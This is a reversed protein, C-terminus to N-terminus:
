GYAHDPRRSRASELVWAHTITDGSRDVDLCKPRFAVNKRMHRCAVDLACRVFLPRFRM